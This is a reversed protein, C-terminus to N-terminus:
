LRLQKLVQEVRPLNVDGTQSHRTGGLIEAAITTSTGIIAGQKRMAIAREYVRSRRFVFQSLANSDLLYRKM